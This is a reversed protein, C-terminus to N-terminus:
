LAKDVRVGWVITNSNVDYNIYPTTINDNKKRWIYDQSYHNEEEVKEITPEGWIGSYYKKVGKYIIDASENDKANITYFFNYLSDDKFNFELVAEKEFLMQKNVSETYGQVALEDKKEEPRIGRLDPYKEKIANYDSGIKIADVLTLYRKDQDSLILHKQVPAKVVETVDEKKLETTDVFVTDPETTNTKDSTNSTCAALLALLSFLLIGYFGKKDKMKM